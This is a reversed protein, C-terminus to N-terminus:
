HLLDGDAPQWHWDDYYRTQHRPACNRTLMQEVIVLVTQSMPRGLCRFIASLSEGFPEIAFCNAAGASAWIGRGFVVGGDLQRYVRCEGELLRHAPTGPELKLAVERGTPTTTDTALFIQGFTSSGFKRQLHFRNALLGGM